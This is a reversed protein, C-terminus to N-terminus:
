ELYYSILFLTIRTASYNSPNINRIVRSRKILQSIIANNTKTWAVRSNLCISFLKLDNWRHQQIQEFNLNFKKICIKWDTELFILVVLFIHLNYFLITAIDLKNKWEIYNGLYKM